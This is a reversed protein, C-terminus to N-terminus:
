QNNLELYIVGTPELIEWNEMAQDSEFGIGNIIQDARVIQVQKESYIRGRKEDWYLEETKLSDGEANIAIVNNKALWISKKQDHHAYDAILQSSVVHGDDIKEVHIGQPFEMYDEFNLVKPASMKFRVLASDSYYMEFVEAEMSAQNEDVIFEKIEDTKNPHCSFLLMVIIGHIMAISTNKRFKHTLSDPM